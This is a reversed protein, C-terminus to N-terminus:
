EFREYHEVQDDPDPEDVPFLDGLLRDWGAENDDYVDFDTRAAIDNTNM